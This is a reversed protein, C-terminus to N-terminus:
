WGEIPIISEDLRCMYLGGCQTGVVFSKPDRISFCISTINLGPEIAREKKGGASQPRAKEIPNREKLIKLRYLFFNFM